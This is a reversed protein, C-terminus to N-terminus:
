WGSLKCFDGFGSDTKVIVGESFRVVVSKEWPKVEGPLVM